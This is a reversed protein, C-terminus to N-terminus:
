IVVQFLYMIKIQNMNQAENDWTAMNDSPFSFSSTIILSKTLGSRVANIFSYVNLEIAPCKTPPTPPFRRIQKDIDMKITNERIWRRAM